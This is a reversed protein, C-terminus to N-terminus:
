LKKSSRENKGGIKRGLAQNLDESMDEYMDLILYPEEEEEEQSAKPSTASYSQIKQWRFYPARSFAVWSNKWINYAISELEIPAALSWNDDRLFIVDISVGMELADDVPLAFGDKCVMVRSPADDSSWFMSEM